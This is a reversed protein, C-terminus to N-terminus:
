SSSVALVASVIRSSLADRTIPKPLFSHMGADLCRQEDQDLVNATVAIIKPIPQHVADKFIRKTTEIGDLGPMNLDMLILDYNREQWTNLCELGNNAIDCELGLSELMRQLIIQNFKNDEVILATIGDFRQSGVAEVSTVIPQKEDSPTLPLYATFSSGAGFDSSIELRGKMLRLLSRSISLGLGVGSEGELAKSQDSVQNFPRKIFELNEPEIGMGTDNVSFFLEDRNDKNSGVVLDVKGEQTYKVANSLLNTLIQTLRVEDTLIHSPLDGISYDFEIEKKEKIILAETFNAMNKVFDSVDMRKARIKIKDAEIKSLDLVDTLLQLLTESSENMLQFLMKQDPDLDNLKLLDIAGIISNLPTRIEHSVSALFASKAKSAKDSENKAHELQLNASMLESQARLLKKRDKLFNIRFSTVLVAAGVSALFLGAMIVRKNSGGLPEWVLSPFSLEASILAALSILYIAVITSQQKRGATFSGMLLLLILYPAMPGNAGGNLFWLPFSMGIGTGFFLYQTSRNAPIKRTRIYIWGYIILGVVLILNALPPVGMAMNVVLTPLILMCVILASNRLLRDGVRHNSNAM